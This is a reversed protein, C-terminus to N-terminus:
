YKQRFIKTYIWVARKFSFFRFLLCILGRSFCVYAEDMYNLGLPNCIGHITRKVQERVGKGSKVDSDYQEFLDVLDACIGYRKAGFERESGNKCFWEAFDGDEPFKFTVNKYNKKIFQMLSEAQIENGLWTIELYPEYFCWIYKIGLQKAYDRIKKVDLYYTAHVESFSNSSEPQRDWYDCEFDIPIIARYNNM